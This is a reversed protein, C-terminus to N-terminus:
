LPQGQTDNPSRQVPPPTVPEVSPPAPPRLFLMWSLALAGIAAVLLGIALVPNNRFVQM